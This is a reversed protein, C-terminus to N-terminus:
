NVPLLRSSRQEKTLMNTRGRNMKGCDKCKYYQWKGTPTRYFGQKVLKKSSCVTCKCEGSDDFSNANPPTPNWAKLKDYMAETVVIDQRNYKKMERWAKAKGDMCDLWLQFGSNEMKQSIGLRKAIDAMKNSSFSFQRKAITLTDVVKYPSPPQLGYELFKTNVKKRDFRNMNHGVIVDAEDLKEWLLQMLEKETHKDAGYYDIKKTGYWKGAWSLISWEQIRQISHINQQWTGWVWALNPATEIDFVYTKM